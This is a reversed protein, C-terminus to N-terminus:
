ALWEPLACAQTEDLRTICAGTVHPTVEVTGNRKSVVVNAIVAPGCHLACTAGATKAASGGCQGHGGRCQFQYRSVM